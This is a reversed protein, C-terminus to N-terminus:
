RGLRARSPFIGWLIAFIALAVLAAATAETTSRTIVRAVIYVDLTTGSALPAMSWMLLRSSIQLFQSSITQPERRRHLAAPAMVLAVALVVCLIAILHLLQEGASLSPFGNSFVAVLQFGLLAQVGPLVMRCEELLHTAAQELTLHEVNDPV